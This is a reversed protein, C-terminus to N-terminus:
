CDSIQRLLKLILQLVEKLLNLLRRLQAHDDPRSQYGHDSLRAYVELAKAASRSMSYEEATKLAADKFQQLREPPLEFIAQLADVFEQSLKLTSTSGIKM